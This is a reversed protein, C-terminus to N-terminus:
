GRVQRSKMRTSCNAVPSERICRNSGRQLITSPARNERTTAVLELKSTAARPRPAALRKTAPARREQTNTNLRSTTTLKNLRNRQSMIGSLWPPGASKLRAPILKEAAPIERAPNTVILAFAIKRARTAKTAVDGKTATPCARPRSPTGSM